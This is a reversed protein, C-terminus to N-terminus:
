VVGAEVLATWAAQVRRVDGCCYVGVDAGQGNRVADWVKSGDIGGKLLDFRGLGLMFDELSVREREGLATMTCKWVLDCDWPKRLKRVSSPMKVGRMIARTRIFGQDFAANHAVIESAGSLVEAVEELLRVESAPDQWDDGRTLLIPDLDNFAFSVCYLEGLAPQLSTKRYADREREQYKEAIEAQTPAKKLGTAWAHNALACEAAIHAKIHPSQAPITETDLHITM